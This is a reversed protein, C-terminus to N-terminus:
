FKNQQSDFTLKDVKNQDIKTEKLNFNTGFLKDWFLNSVGFGAEENKYHHLHHNSWLPKLWKFPPAIAHIAYHMSAYLLYGFIFGSFFPFAYKGGILYFIGFITGSILISPVPPMFLRDRDRPYEHHNGHLLYILRSLSKYKELWHFIFRHALYEFLTWIFLATIWILIIKSIEINYIRFAYIPAAIIIPLYISWILLPPAKTLAELIPNSFLKAQGKNKIKKDSRM